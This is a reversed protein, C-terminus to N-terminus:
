ETAVSDDIKMKSSPPEVVAAIIGAILPSTFFSLITYFRFSLGKRQAYAGVGFCLGIIIGVFGYTFITTIAFGTPSVFFGVWKMSQQVQDATMNGSALMQQRSTALTKEIMEPEIATSYIFVWIAGFVAAVICIMFATVWGKGFTFSSPDEMMKEEVGAFLIVVGIVAAIWRMWAFSQDMSIGAIYMILNVIITVITIYLGWKVSNKM